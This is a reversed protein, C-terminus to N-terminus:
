IQEPNTDRAGGERRRLRFWELVKRIRFMLGVFGAALIQWILLGSGPDAYAKLPIEAVCLIFVLTLCLRVDVLRRLM